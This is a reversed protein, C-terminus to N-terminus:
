ITNSQNDVLPNGEKRTFISVILSIILGTFLSGLISAGAMIGPKMFKRQMDMSADIMNDPVRGSKRLQEEAFVLGKETLGPDIVTYLIYSFIAMIIGYYVFIIMGAGLSQGYTIIGHLYNDRYSKIFYYLLVASILLFVYSIGRNFTLDLFWLVLTFVIGALGMILGNTFNAKWPNVKEEM